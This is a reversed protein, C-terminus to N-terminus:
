RGGQHDKSGKLLKFKKLIPKPDGFKEIEKIIDELGIWPSRFGRQCDRAIKILAEVMNNTGVTSGVMHLVAEGVFRWSKVGRSTLPVAISNPPLYLPSSLQKFAEEFVRKLRAQHLEYLGLKIMSITTLYEPIAELLWADRPDKPRVISGWWMKMFGRVLSMLLATRSSTNSPKLAILRSNVFGGEAITAVDISSYPPELGLDRSLDICARIVERVVVPDVDIGRESVIRLEIGKVNYARITGDRVLVLDLPPVNGIGEVVFHGAERLIYASSAVEVQKAWLELRVLKHFGSVLPIFVTEEDASSPYWLSSCRLVLSRKASSSARLSISGRARFRTAEEETEVWLAEFIGLDPDYRKSFRLGEVNLSSNVWFGRSKPPVEVDVSLELLSDRFLVEGDLVEVLLKSDKRPAIGGRIKALAKRLFRM